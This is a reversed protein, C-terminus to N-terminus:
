LLDLSMLLYSSCLWVIVVVFEFCGSCCVESCYKLMMFDVLGVM